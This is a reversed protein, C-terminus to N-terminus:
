VACALPVKYSAAEEQYSKGLSEATSRESEAASLMHQLERM